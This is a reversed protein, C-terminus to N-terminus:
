HLIPVNPCVLVTLANMGIGNLIKGVKNEPDNLIYLQFALSGQSFAAIAPHTLDSSSSVVPLVEDVEEAEGQSEGQEKLSAAERRKARAAEIAQHSQYRRSRHQQATVHSRIQKRVKADKGQLPENTPDLFRFVTPAPRPPM